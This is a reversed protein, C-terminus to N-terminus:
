KIEIIYLKENFLVLRLEINKPYDSDKVYSVEV